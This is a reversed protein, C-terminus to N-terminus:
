LTLYWQESYFIKKVKPFFLSNSSYFIYELKINNYNQEISCQKILINAYIYNYILIDIKKLPCFM